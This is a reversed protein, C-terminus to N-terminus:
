DTGSDIETIVELNKVTQELEEDDLGCLNSAAKWVRALASSSKRNLASVDRDTFVRKGEDDIMCRACLKARAAELNVKVNKGSGTTLSDRFEDYESGTLGKVLVEGDWEPVPVTETKIDPAKLIQEKTLM